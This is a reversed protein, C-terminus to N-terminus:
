TLEYAGQGPMHLMYRIVIAKPSRVESLVPRFDHSVGRFINM